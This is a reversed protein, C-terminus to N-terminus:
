HTDRESTFTLAWLLPYAGGALFNVFDQFALMFTGSSPVCGAYTTVNHIVQGGCGPDRFPVEPVAHLWVGCTFYMGAHM